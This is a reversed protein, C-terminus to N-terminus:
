RWRRLSGIGIWPLGPVQTAYDRYAPGVFKLLRKDKFCSGLYIYATWVGTLIAHDMTMVPTFWILGLFSMYVPHRMWRYIGSVVFQRQPLKSRRLWHWWQTLGTQYGMGTLYLSYLLLIWSGYFGVLCAQESIGTLDWLVVESRGWWQFMMWLSVCTTACHVCGLLGSPVYRKMRTAVSPVLLLSHPVAFGLALAIDVPIWYTHSHFGGFRLFQFLYIVTWLFFLQTGIGFGIGVMRGVSRDNTIAREDAIARTATSLSGTSM